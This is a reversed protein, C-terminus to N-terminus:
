GRRLDARHVTIHHPRRTYAWRGNAELEGIPGTFTGTVRPADEVSVDVILVSDDRMRALVIPADVLGPIDHVSMLGPLDLAPAAPAARTARDPTATLTHRQEVGITGIDDLHNVLTRDDFSRNVIAGDDTIEIWADDGAPLDLLREFTAAGLTRVQEIRKRNLRSLMARTDRSNADWSEFGIVVPMLAQGDPGAVVEILHDQTRLQIIEGPDLATLELLQTDILDHDGIFTEWPQLDALTNQWQTTLDIDIEAALDYLWFPCGGWYSWVGSWRDWIAIIEQATLGAYMANDLDDPPPEHLCDDIHIVQGGIVLGDADIAATAPRGLDVLRVGRSTRIIVRIPQEVANAVALPLVVRITGRGPLPELPAPAPPLWVYPTLLAPSTLMEVECLRGGHDYDISAATSFKGADPTEDPSEGKSCWTVAQAANSWRGGTVMLTDRGIDIGQSVRGSFLLGGAHSELAEIHLRGGALDLIPLESEIAFSREGTAVGGFRRPDMAREVAMRITEKVPQPMGPLSFIDELIVLADVAGTHVTASWGVDIRLRPPLQGSLSPRCDFRANIHAIFPDPVDAKASIDVVIRPDPQHPFSPGPTWTSRFGFSTLGPVSEPMFAAAMGEAATGDLFLCWERGPPIREQAASTPDFRLLLTPGVQEVSSSRVNPMGLQRLLGTLDASVPAGIEGELMRRLAAASAGLVADLPGLDVGVCRLEALAQLTRQGQSDDVTRISLEFLVTVRGAPTAAGPSAGSQVLEQRRVIFVEVPVRLQSGSWSVEDAVIDAHDLYHGDIPPVCITHLLMQCRRAAIQALTAARVQIEIAM